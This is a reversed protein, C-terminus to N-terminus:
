EADAWREPLGLRLLLGGCKCLREGAGAVLQWSREWCGLCVCLQFWM